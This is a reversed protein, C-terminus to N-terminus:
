YLHPVEPSVRVEPWCKLPRLMKKVAQRIHSHTYVLALPYVLRTFIRFFMLLQFRITVIWYLSYDGLPLMELLRGVLILAIVEVVSSTSIALPMLVPLSLMRRNLQDDGGTVTIYWQFPQLSLYSYPQSWYLYCNCWLHVQYIKKGFIVLFQFASLCTFQPRPHLKGRFLNSYRHDSFQHPKSLYFALLRSASM